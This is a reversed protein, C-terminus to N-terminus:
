PPSAHPPPRGTFRAIGAAVPALVSGDPLATVNAVAPADPMAGATGAVGPLAIRIRVRVPSGTAIARSRAQAVAGRWEVAADDRPGATGIALGAVGAAVGLIVIVVLLEILTVGERSQSARSM